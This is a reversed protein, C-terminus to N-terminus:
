QPWLHGLSDRLRPVTRRSARVSSSCTCSRQQYNYSRRPTTRSHPYAQQDQLRNGSQRHKSQKIRATQALQKPIGAILLTVVSSLMWKSAVVSTAQPATLTNFMAPCSLTISSSLKCTV